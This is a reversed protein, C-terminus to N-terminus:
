APSNLDHISNGRLFPALNRLTKLFYKRMNENRSIMIIPLVTFLIVHFFTHFLIRNLYPDDILLDTLYLILLVGMGIVLIAMIRITNPSYGLDLRFIFFM